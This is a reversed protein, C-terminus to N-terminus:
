EPEGAYYVSAWKPGILLKLYIKIFCTRKFNTWLILSAPQPPPPQSFAVIGFCSLTKAM